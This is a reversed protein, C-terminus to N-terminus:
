WTTSLHSERLFVEIANWGPIRTEPKLEQIKRKRGSTLSLVHGPAPLALTIRLEEPIKKLREDEKGPFEDIWLIKPDVGAKAAEKHVVKILESKNMELLKAEEAPVPADLDSRVEYSVKVLKIPSENTDIAIVKGKDLKPSVQPIEPHPILIELITNTLQLRSSSGIMELDPNPQTILRVITIPIPRSVQSQHEPEM